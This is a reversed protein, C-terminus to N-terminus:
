RRYAAVSKTLMKRAGFFLIGESVYPDGVVLAYIWIDCINFCAAVGCLGTCDTWLSVCEGLTIVTNDLTM